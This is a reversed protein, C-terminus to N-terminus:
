KSISFNINPADLAGAGIGADVSKAADIAQQLVEVSDAAAVLNEIVEGSMGTMGLEDWLDIYKKRDPEVLTPDTMPHEGITNDGDHLWDLDYHKGISTPLTKEIIRMDASCQILKPLRLGPRIEWLSSQDISFNLSQFIMPQSDFMDGLTLSFFPAIMRNNRVTPYTLGRLYNLKEWLTVLEQASKPMVKFTINVNRDSGQYTYVKDPRGIYREEAFQPSSTDSVSEIIARFIIWKGNVMDRFKFPVFDSNENNIHKSAISGGYPHLNIKDQLTTKYVGTGDSAVIDTLPKGDKATAPIFRAAKGYSGIGRTIDASNKENKKGYGEAEGGLQGYSLMEYKQIKNKTGSSDQVNTPFEPTIIDRYVKTQNLPFNPTNIPDLRGGAFGAGMAFPIGNQDSFDIGFTWLVSKTTKGLILKTYPFDADYINALSGRNDGIDKATTYWLKPVGYAEIEERNLHQSGGVGKKLSAIDVGYRGSAGERAYLPVGPQPIGRATVMNLDFGPLDILGKLGKNFGFKFDDFASLDFGLNGGKIKLGFNIVPLVGKLSGLGLGGRGSFKIGPLKIGSVFSSIGSFPNGLDPLDIKPLSPLSPLPPLSISPIPLSSVLNGLKNSLGGLLSMMGSFDPTGIGQVGILGPFLGSLSDAVRGLSVKPLTVDSFANGLADAIDGVGTKANEYINPFVDLMGRGVNAAINGLGTLLSGARFDPNMSIHPWAVQIGDLLSLVGGGADVIFNGVNNILKITPSGVPTKHRVFHAGIPLSAIISEPGRWTRIDSGEWEQVTPGGGMYHGTKADVQAFSSKFIDRGASFRQPVSDQRLVDKGLAQNIRSKLTSLSVSGGANLMQLVEQKAIFGVGRPTLLFKGIRQVDAVTRASQTLIGARVIGEDVSWTDPGWRDGIPKLIFPEDFGLRNNNRAGLVDTNKLARDYYARLDFEKAQVLMSGQGSFADNFMWKLEDGKRNYSTFVDKEVDHRIATEFKRQGTVTYASHGDAFSQPSEKSGVGIALNSKMDVLAM